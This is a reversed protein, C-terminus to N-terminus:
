SELSAAIWLQERWLDSHYRYWGLGLDQQIKALSLSNWRRLMYSGLAVSSDMWDGKARKNNVHLDTTILPLRLKCRSCIKGSEVEIQHQRHVRGNRMQIAVESPFTRNHCPMSLFFFL